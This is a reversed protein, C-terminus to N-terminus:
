PTGLVRRLPELHASYKRWRGISSDYIPKTVQDYSLTMVTRNSEWYRLCRDDWPLGLFEIIQRTVRQQDAVLEEYKVTLMPLDLTNKWHNMLREHQRYVFGLHELNRAYTM